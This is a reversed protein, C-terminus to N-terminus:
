FKEATNIRVTNDTFRRRKGDDTFNTKKDLLIINKSARSIAVYFLQATNKIERNNFDYFPIM